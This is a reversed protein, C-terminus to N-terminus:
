AAADPVEEDDEPPNEIADAAARYFSALEARLATAEVHDGHVPMTVLGIQQEPSDGVRMYVPLTLEAPM